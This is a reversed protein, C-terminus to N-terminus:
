QMESHARHLQGIELHPGIVVPMNCAPMFLTSAPMFLTASFEQLAYRKNKMSSNQPIKPM